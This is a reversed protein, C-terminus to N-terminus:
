HNEETQYSEDAGQNREEDTTLLAPNPNTIRGLYGVRPAFSEAPLITYHHPLQKLRGAGGEAMDNLNGFVIASHPCAQQCATQLSSSPISATDGKFPQKAATIRQACLSCKETVGKPRVTVNPNIGAHADPRGYDNSKRIGIPCHPACARIGLCRGYAMANLGDSTHGAAGTPCVPECPAQECHVCIIPQFRPVYCNQESHSIFSDLQIWDPTQAYTQIHDTPSINNEQRCALICAGCGTCSSLNIVMGWRPEGNQSLVKKKGKFLPPRPIAPPSMKNVWHPDKQFNEWSTERIFSSSLLTNSSNRGEEENTHASETKCLGVGTAYSPHKTTRLSYANFGNNEGNKCLWKQGYGLPLTVSYDPHGSIAYFPVDIEVGGLSIKILDNRRTSCVGENRHHILELELARATEPSILAVNSRMTKTIPDPLGQLSRNAAHRGDLMKYDPTFVIEFKEPGLKEFKISAPDFAATWRHKFNAQAPSPLPAAHFGKKLLSEWAHDLGNASGNRWLRFSEKVTEMGDSFPLGALAALIQNESWGGFRPAVLPQTLLFSGDDSLSDGWCELFHTQPVFWACANASEDRFLGLRVTTKVSRIANEFDTDAPATYAPNGGILFLASVESCSIKQALEVIDPFRNNENKKVLKVTRGINGLAHNIAIALLHVSLPQRPGVVVLSRGKAAFLDKAAEEVWLPDLELANTDIETNSIIKELFRNEVGLELLYEALYAALAGIQSAPLALRHDAMGGTLTIRSEAAYLRNMKANPDEMRRGDMFGKAFAPGRSDTGLFDDDLVLIVDANGPHFVPACKEGFASAFAKEEMDDSLPDHVCFLMKPFQKQLEAHLRDRSPSNCKEVLFALGKGKTKVFENRLRSLENEFDARTSQKGGRLFTRARDPSYFDWLAAQTHPDTKGQWTPHLPNGAIQIPQGEFLGALLPVGSRPQPASTACTLISHEAKWEPDPAFPIRGRRPPTCGTLGTGALAAFAGLGRLFNRRSLGEDTDM